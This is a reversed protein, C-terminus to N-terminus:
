FKKSGGASSTPKTACSFVVTNGLLFFVATNRKKTVKM